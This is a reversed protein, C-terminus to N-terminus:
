ASKSQSRSDPVPFPVVDSVNFYARLDVLRPGVDLIAIQLTASTVFFESALCRLEDENTPDVVIQTLPLKTM